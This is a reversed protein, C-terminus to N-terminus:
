CDPVLHKRCDYCMRCVIATVLTVSESSNEFKGSQFPCAPKLRETHFGVAAAVYPVPYDPFIHRKPPWFIPSEQQCGLRINVYM